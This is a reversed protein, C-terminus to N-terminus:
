MVKEGESETTVSGKETTLQEVAERKYPCKHNCKCNVWIIWIMEWGLIRLTIMSAFDRQGYLVVNM